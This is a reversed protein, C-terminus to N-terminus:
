WLTRKMPARRPPLVCRAPRSRPSPRALPFAIVTAIKVRTNKLVERALTVHCPFICVAAMAFDRAEACLRSVDATTASAKLLTHDIHRGFDGPMSFVSRRSTAITSHSTLDMASLSCTPTRFGVYDLPVPHRRNTEKEILAVIRLSHPKRSLLLDKVASLTLGSDVIDEVLLVNGELSGEVDREIRLEGSSRTGSGYSSVTM